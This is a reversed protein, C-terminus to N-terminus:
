RANLTSPRDTSATKGNHNPIPCLSPLSSVHHRRDSSINRIILTSQDMVSSVDYQIAVAEHTENLGVVLVLHLCPQLGPLHLCPPLGVVNVSVLVPRSVSRQYSVRSKHFFLVPRTWSSPFTTNSLGCWRSSTITKNKRKQCVSVLSSQAPLTM